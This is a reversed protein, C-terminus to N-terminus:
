IIQLGCHGLFLILILCTIFYNNMTPLIHYLGKTMYTKCKKSTGGAGGFNM